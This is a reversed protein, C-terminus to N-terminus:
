RSIVMRYAVSRLAFIYQRRFFLFQRQAVSQAVEWFFIVCRESGLKCFFQACVAADIHIPEARLVIHVGAGDLVIRVFGQLCGANHQHNLVIKVGGYRLM